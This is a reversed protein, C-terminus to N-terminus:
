ALVRQYRREERSRSHLPETRFPAARSLLVAAQTQSTVNLREFLRKTQSRVTEVSVGRQLAIDNIRRGSVLGEAILLECETLDFMARWIDGAAHPADDPDVILLLRTAGGGAGLLRVVYPQAGNRRQVRVIAGFGGQPATTPKALQRALEIQDGHRHCAIRGQLLSFGDARRLMMACSENMELLSLDAKVIAAGWRSQDLAAAKLACNSAMDSVQARAKVASRAVAAAADFAARDFPARTLAFLASYFPASGAPRRWALKWGGDLLREGGEAAHRDRLIEQCADAFWAPAGSSVSTTPSAGDEWVLGLCCVGLDEATLDLTEEWGRAQFAADIWCGLGQSSM